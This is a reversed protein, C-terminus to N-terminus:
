KKHYGCSNLLKDIVRANKLSFENTVHIPEGSEICRNMQNVEEIYNNLTDVVFTESKNDTTVAYSVEGCSNFPINLRIEGNTGYINLNDCRQPSCMGCSMIARRGDKYMMLGTLLDDVGGETFHAIGNVVDPEDGGFMTLIFSTCYCGLDYLGGGALSRNLRVNDAKPTPTLFNCEIVKAEGIIGSELKAKVEKIALSHLYAFAEMLIVDNERCVEVMELVEDETLGMPKECLIHKGVKAFKKVWEKHMSNPLPIYVADIEENDLMGEYSDYGVQFGFEEVFQNVKDANRGAIAYLECNDAELMAPLLEKRAINATGLVGWKIDRM